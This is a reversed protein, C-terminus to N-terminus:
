LLKGSLNLSSLYQFNKGLGALLKLSEKQPLRIIEKKLSVSLKLSLHVVSYNWFQGYLKEEWNERELVLILCQLQIRVNEVRLCFLM